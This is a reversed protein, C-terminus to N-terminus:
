RGHIKPLRSAWAPLENTPHRQGFIQTWNNPEAEPAVSIYGEPALEFPEAISSRFSMWRPNVEQPYGFWAPLAFDAVTVGCTRGEPRGIDYGCGQVPDGVEVIYLQGNHKVTRVHAIDPDVLMELMEHSAVEAPDVGDARATKVFVESFPITTGQEDEHYGLAGEQDSTDLLILNWAGVPPKVAGEHDHPLLQVHAAPALSQTVWCSRGYHYRAQYDLSWVLDFLQRPTLVGSTTHDEVTILQGASSATTDM